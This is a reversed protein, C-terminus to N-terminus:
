FGNDAQLTEGSGNGSGRLELYPYYTDGLPQEHDVKGQVYSDFSSTRTTLDSDNVGRYEWFPPPSRGSTQESIGSVSNNITDANWEITHELEYVIATAVIHQTKDTYSVPIAQTTLDNTSVGQNLTRQHRVEINNQIADNVAQAQEDSLNRWAAEAKNKKDLKLYAEAFSLASEENEPSVKSANPISSDAAASTVPLSLATLGAASYKLADRRSVKSDERPSRKM